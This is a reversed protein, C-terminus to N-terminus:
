KEATKIKSPSGLTAELAKKQLLRALKEKWRKEKLDALRKREGKKKRTYYRIGYTLSKAKDKAKKEQKGRLYDKAVDDSSQFRKEVRKSMKKKAQRSIIINADAKTLSLLEVPTQAVVTCKRFDLGLVGEECCYDGKFSKDLEVNHKVNHTITEKTHKSKPWKNSKSYEIARMISVTGKRIFYMKEAPDGQAAITSGAPYRELELMEALQLLRQWSWGDVLSVSSELFDRNSNTRQSEFNKMSERYTYGRLMAVVTNSELAECTEHRTSTTNNLELADQGFDDSAKYQRGNKVINPLSSSLTTKIGKKRKSSAATTSPKSYTRLLGSVVMYYVQETDGQQYLKEGKVLEKHKIKQCVIRLRQKNLHCLSDFQKVWKMIIKVDDDSREEPHKRIPILVRKNISIKKENFRNFVRQFDKRQKVWMPFLTDTTRAGTAREKVQDKDYEPEVIAWDPVELKRQVQVKMNKILHTVNEQHSKQKVEPGIYWEVMPLLGPRAKLPDVQPTENQADDGEDGSDLLALLDKYKNSLTPASASTIM